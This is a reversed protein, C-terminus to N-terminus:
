KIYIKYYINAEIFWAINKIISNYTKSKLLSEELVAERFDLNNKYQNLLLYFLSCRFLKWKKVFFENEEINKINIWRIIDEAIWEWLILIGWKDLKNYWENVIINRDKENLYRLIWYAVVIDYKWKEYIYDLIDWKIVNINKSYNSKNYVVMNDETEVQDIYSNNFEKLIRRALWGTWWGPIFIKINDKKNFYNYIIDIIYKISPDKDELEVFLNIIEDKSFIDNAVNKFSIKWCTNECDKKIKNFFDIWDKGM